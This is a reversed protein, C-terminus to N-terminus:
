CGALCHALYSMTGDKSHSPGGPASAVERRLRLATLVAARLGGEDYHPTGAPRIILASVREAAKDSGDKLGLERCADRLVAAMAEVAEPSFAGRSAFPTIPVTEGVYWTRLDVSRRCPILNGGPESVIRSPLRGICSSLADTELGPPNRTPKGRSLPRVASM